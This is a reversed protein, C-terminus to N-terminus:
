FKAALTLVAGHCSAENIYDTMTYAVSLSLIFNSVPRSVGASIRVGLRDAQLMSYNSLVSQGLSTDTEFDTLVPTLADALAYEGGASLNWLWCGGSVTTFDVDLQPALHSVELRRYPESYSEREYGYGVGPTFTLYSVKATQWQLPLSLQMTRSSFSYPTRSGIKDYSAGASTGFLNETGKRKFLTGKFVPRFTLSSSQCFGYAVTWDVEDNDTYGLTLNNFNRLQQEMRYHSYAATVALGNKSATPLWQVGANYGFSSYGSNKNTNGMFRRYYTGMGTLTYTNIDNVPNYFDLDCSQNYVNIGAKLGLMNRGLPYTAGLNLDLDSVVTKVRPDRNRYAVEARYAAHAGLTWRDFQHGYGGSFSYSRTSLNGGVEDGLVYPAVRRYDIIDSWRINRYTGTVFAADGWVVSKQSLRTYSAASLGYLTHGDGLQVMVPKGERAIDLNFALSSLSVSDRYVMSAPNAEYDALASELTPLSLRQLEPLMSASQAMVGASLTMAVTMAMLRYNNTIHRTLKESM